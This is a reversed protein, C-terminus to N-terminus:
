LGARWLAGVRVSASNWATPEFVAPTGASLVIYPTIMQGRYGFMGVMFDHGAGVQIGARPMWDIQTAFKISTQPAGPLNTPPGGDWQEHQWVFSDVSGIPYDLTIGAMLFAGTVGVQWKANITSAVYLVTNQSEFTANHAFIDIQQPTTTEAKSWRWELNSTFVFGLESFIPRYELSPGLGIGYGYGGEPQVSLSPSGPATGGIVGVTLTGFNMAYFSSVNVGLWWESKRILTDIGYERDEHTPSKFVQASASPGTSFSLIILVAISVASLVLASSPRHRMM